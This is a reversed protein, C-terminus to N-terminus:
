CRRDNGHRACLDDHGGGREHHDVIGPGAGATVCGIHLLGDCQQILDLFTDDVGVFDLGTHVSLLEGCKHVCLGPHVGVACLFQSEAIFDEKDLVDSLARSVNECDIINVGEPKDIYARLYYDSGEKVYEIDYISVGFQEAIPLLIAETKSEYDERKSM